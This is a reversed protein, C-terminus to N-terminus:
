ERRVRAIAARLQAPLPNDKHQGENGDWGDGTIHALAAECARLLEDRQRVVQEFSGLVAEMVKNDLEINWGSGEGHLRKYEEWNM